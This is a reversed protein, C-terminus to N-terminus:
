AAWAQPEGHGCVRRHSPSLQLAHLAISGGITTSGLLLPRKPTTEGLRTQSLDVERAQPCRVSLQMEADDWQDPDAGGNQRHSCGTDCAGDKPFQNPVGSLRGLKGASDTPPAQLM